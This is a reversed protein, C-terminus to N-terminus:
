HTSLIQLLSINTSYLLDDDVFVDKEIASDQSNSLDLLGKLTGLM